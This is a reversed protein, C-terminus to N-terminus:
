KYNIFNWLIFVVRWWISILEKEFEGCSLSFDFMLKCSNRCLYVVCFDKFNGLLIIKM